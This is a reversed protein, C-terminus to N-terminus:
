PVGMQRAFLGGVLTPLLSLATLLLWVGLTLLVAKRRPLRTFVMVGVVLLALNWMWFLDVKALFAALLTQGPSPRTLIMEGVARNDRVLGSLGPNAITQGSLLIYVTQLLGRLVFPLWAWVVLRFMHGFTSRGGLAMGVLYLAGAWALWGVVQGVVRGAAPFVVTILPSAAVSMAQEMQAEDGASPEEEWQEQAARVAERTQRATLPAAVAIPLVILLVALLAPVWWTREGHDRLAELTARPRVIMGWLLGPLRRIEPTPTKEEPEESMAEEEGVQTLDHDQAERSV